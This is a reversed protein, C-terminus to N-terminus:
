VIVVAIMLYEWRGCSLWMENGFYKDLNSTQM